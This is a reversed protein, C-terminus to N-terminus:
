SWIYRVYFGTLLLPGGGCVAMWPWFVGPSVFLGALILATVVLGLWLLYTDTWLGAVVYAQMFVLCLYAYLTRADARVGLVFPFIAAFLFLTTLVAVLRRDLPTKIQRAQTLGIVTSAIIGPLCILGFWHAAGDGGFQAALPMVIWAAGWIWLHWHGRNARIARRMTARARNVEALAAAADPPTLQM